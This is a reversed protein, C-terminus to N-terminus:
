PPQPLLRGLDDLSASAACACGPSFKVVGVDTDTQPDIWTFRQERLEAQTIM